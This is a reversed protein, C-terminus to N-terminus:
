PDGQSVTAIDDDAGMELGLIRDGETGLADGAVLICRNGEEAPGASFQPSNVRGAYTRGAGEASTCPGPHANTGTGYPNRRARVTAM